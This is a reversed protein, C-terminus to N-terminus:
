RGAWDDIPFSAETYGAVHGDVYAAQHRAKHSYKITGVGCPYNRWASGPSMYYAYYGADCYGIRVGWAPQYGYYTVGYEYNGDHYAIFRDPHHVHSHLRVRSDHYLGLSTGNPWDPVSMNVLYQNLQYNGGGANNPWGWTRREYPCRYVTDLRTQPLAQREPFLAGGDVRPDSYPGVKDANWPNGIPATVDPNLYLMWYASNWAGSFLYSNPDFFADDRDDVCTQTAVWLQRLRSFRSHKVSISSRTTMAMMAM